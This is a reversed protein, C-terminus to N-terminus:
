ATHCHSLIMIATMIGSYVQLARLWPRDEAVRRRQVVGELDRRRKHIYKTYVYPLNGLGAEVLFVFTFVNQTRISCCM